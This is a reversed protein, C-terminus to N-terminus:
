RAHKARAAERNLQTSYPMPLGSLTRVIEEERIEGQDEKELALSYGRPAPLRASAEKASTKVEDKMGANRFQLMNFSGEMDRSM